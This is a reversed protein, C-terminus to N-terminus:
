FKTAQAKNQIQVLKLQLNNSAQQKQKKNQMLFISTSIKVYPPATSFTPLGRTGRVRKGMWMTYCVNQM